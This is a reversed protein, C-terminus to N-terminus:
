IYEILRNLPHNDGKSYAIFYPTFKSGFSSKGNGSQSVQEPGAIFGLISGFPENFNDGDINM